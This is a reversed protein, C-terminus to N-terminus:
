FLNTANEASKKLYNDSNYNVPDNLQNENRLSYFVKFTFRKNALGNEDFWFKLKHCDQQLKNLKQVKNTITYNYFM